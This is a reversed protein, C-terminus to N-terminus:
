ISTFQIEDLIFTSLIIKEPYWFRAINKNQDHIVSYSLMQKEDIEQILFFTSRFCLTDKSGMNAIFKRECRM